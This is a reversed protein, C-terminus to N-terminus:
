CSLRAWVSNARTANYPYRLLYAFTSHLAHPYCVALITGCLNTEQNEREIEKKSQIFMLHFHHKNTKASYLNFENVACFRGFFKSTVRLLLWTHRESKGLIMVILM